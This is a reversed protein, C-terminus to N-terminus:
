GRRRRHRCWRRRAPAAPTSEAAAHRDGPIAGPHRRAAALSRRRDCADGRRLMSLRHRGARHRDRGAAPARAAARPRRAAEGFPGPAAGSRGEGTRSRGRRNGTRPRGSGPQVPRSRAKGLAPWVADAAAPSAPPALPREPRRASRARRDAAGERGARCRARGLGDAGPRAACCPRRSPHRTDGRGPNDWAAPATRDEVELHTLM